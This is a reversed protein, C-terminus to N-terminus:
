ITQILNQIESQLIQSTQNDIGKPTQSKLFQIAANLTNKAALTQNFSLAKNATNLLLLTEDYVYQSKIKNQNKADFLDQIISNITLNENTSNKQGITIQYNDTENNGLIGNIKNLNVNGNADYLYSDLEYIGNGSVEIKYNGNIPKPFMFIKLPNGSLSSNNTDNILPNQIFTDGTIENNNTDFVKINFNPDITLMIYSLNTHSPTYTELSEFTNGYSTLDPHNNYAPDNIGFSNSTLSKAVIFHGPEELIAPRNNTLEDTLNQNTNGKRLFELSPQNNNAHTKSYRSIALWNLLGPYIYGDTQSNLWTNLDEPNINFGYYQLVMDASTLACGWSKITPDFPSWSKATDYVKTGWPSTFQKIDPVNLSPLPNSPLDSVTINDFWDESPANAGTTILLGIKGSLIPNNTDTWDLVASSTNNIFVQIHNGNATVTIKSVVGLPLTTDNNVPEVYGSSTFKQLWIHNSYMHIGYSVPLNLNFLNVRQNTIRFLINRDTGQLPLLDVSFKYNSWSFDGTEAEIGTNQTTVTGGFRYSNQINQVSWNGNIITWNSYNQNEFDDSFSIAFINKPSLFLLSILTISTLIFKLKFKNM